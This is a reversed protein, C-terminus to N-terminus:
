LTARTAQQPQWPQLRWSDPELTTHDGNNGAVMWLSDDFVFVSNAHRALWPTGPVEHWEKGHLQLTSVGVESPAM